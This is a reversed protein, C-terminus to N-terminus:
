TFTQPRVFYAKLNWTYRKFSLGGSFKPCSHTIIFYGTSSPEWRWRGACPRNWPQALDCDIQVGSIIKNTCTAVFTLIMSKAIYIYITIHLSPCYPLIKRCRIKVSCVHFWNVKSQQVACVFVCGFPSTLLCFIPHRMIYITMDNCLTQVNGAKDPLVM